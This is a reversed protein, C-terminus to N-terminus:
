MYGMINGVNQVGVGRRLCGGGSANGTGEQRM